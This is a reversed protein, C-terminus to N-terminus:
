FGFDGSGIEPVVRFFRLFRNLPSATQFAGDRTLFSKFRANGVRFNKKFKGFRVFARQL